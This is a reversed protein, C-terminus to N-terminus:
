ACDSRARTESTPYSSVTDACRRLWYPLGRMLPLIKMSGPMVMYHSLGSDLAEVMRRAVQTPHLTPHLFPMAHSEMSNGMM